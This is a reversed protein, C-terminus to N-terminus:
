DTSSVMIGVGHDFVLKGGHWGAIGVFVSALASLGLGLPLVATEADEIRVGWNMGAISLLDGGRNCSNWSAARKRIGPM